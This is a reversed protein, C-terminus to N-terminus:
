IVISKLALVPRNNIDNHYCGFVFALIISQVRSLLGEHSIARTHNIKMHDQLQENVTEIISRKKLLRRDEETNWQHHRRKDPVVLRAGFREKLELRLEGDYYGKDAILTKHRLREGYDPLLAKLAPLDHQNAVSLGYGTPIGQETVFLSLKKGYYYEKKSACYGFNVETKRRFGKCRYARHLKAVPVPTTDIIELLLAAIGLKELLLAHIDRQTSALRKAKRNFWSREPLQPFVRAHHLALFRLFSSESDFGFLSKMILITIVLSNPYTAEPGPRVIEDVGVENCLGRIEAVIASVANPQTRM